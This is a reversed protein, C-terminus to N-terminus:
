TKATLVGYKEEIRSTLTDPDLGFHALADPIRAEAENALDALTQNKVDVSVDKLGSGYKAVLAGAANTLFTQLADRNSQDLQVGVFRKALYALGLVVATALVAIYSTFLDYATEGVHVTTDQAHALVPVLVFAVLAASRVFKMKM